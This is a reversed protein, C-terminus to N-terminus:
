DVGAPDLEGRVPLLEAAFSGVDVGSETPADHLLSVAPAPSTVPSLPLPAGAEACQRVRRLLRRERASHGPGVAAGVVLRSAMTARGAGRDSLEISWMCGDSRQGVVLRPAEIRVVEFGTHEHREGPADLLPAIRAGADTRIPGRRGWDASDLGLEVLWAWVQEVPADIDVERVARLSRAHAILRHLVTATAGSVVAGVAVILAFEPSGIGLM